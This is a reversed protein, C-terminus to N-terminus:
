GHGGNGGERTEWMGETGIAKGFKCKRRAAWTAGARGRERLGADVEQEQGGGAPLVVVLDEDVLNHGAEGRVNAAEELDVVDDLGDHASSPARSPPTSPPPSTPLSNPATPRGNWRPEGAGGECGQM